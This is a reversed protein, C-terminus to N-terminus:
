QAGASGVFRSQEIHDAANDLRRFAPHTQISFHDVLLAPQPTVEPTQPKLLNSEDELNGVQQGELVSFMISTISSAPAADPWARVLVM